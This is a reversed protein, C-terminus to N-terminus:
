QTSEPLKAGLIAQQWASEAAEVIGDGAADQCLAFRRGGAKAILGIKRWFRLVLYLQTSPVQRDRPSNAAHTSLDKASFNSSDPLRSMAKAIAEYDPRSIQLRTRGGPQTVEMLAGESAVYDIASDPTSHIPPLPGSRWTLNGQSEGPKGLNPLPSPEAPQVSRTWAASMWFHRADNGAAELTKVLPAIAVALAPNNAILDLLAASVAAVRDWPVMVDSRGQPRPGTQEGMLGHGSPVKRQSMVWTLPGEMHVLGRKHALVFVSYVLTWLNLM